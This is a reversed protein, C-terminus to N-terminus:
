RKQRLPLQDVIQAAAQDRSRQGREEQQSPHQQWRGRPPGRGHNGDHHQRREGRRQEIQQVLRRLHRPALVESGNSAGRSSVCGLHQEGKGTQGEFGPEAEIRDHAREPPHQDGM